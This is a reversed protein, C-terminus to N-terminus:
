RKAFAGYAAEAARVVALAEKMARTVALTADPDGDEDTTTAAMLAELLRETSAVLTASLEAARIDRAYWERYRKLREEAKAVVGPPLKINSM